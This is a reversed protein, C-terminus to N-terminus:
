LLGNTSTAHATDGHGQIRTARTRGHLSKRTPAPPSHPLRPQCAHPTANAQEWLTRCTSAPHSPSKPCWSPIPAHLSPSCEASKPSNSLDALHQPSIQLFFFLVSFVTYLMFIQLLPQHPHRTVPHSAVSHTLSPSERPLRSFSTFHLLPTPFAGQKRTSGLLLLPTFSELFLLLHEETHHSQFAAFLQPHQVNVPARPRGPPNTSSCHKPCKNPAVDKAQPSGSPPQLRPPTVAHKAARSGLLWRSSAAGETTGRAAKDANQPEFQRETVSEAASARGAPLLVSTLHPNHLCPASM